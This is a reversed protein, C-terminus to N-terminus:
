SFLGSRSAYNFKRKPKEKEKIPENGELIEVMLGYKRVIAELRSFSRDIVGFYNNTYSGFDVQGDIVQVDTLILKCDVWVMQGITQNGNLLKCINNYALRFKRESYEGKPFLRIRSM